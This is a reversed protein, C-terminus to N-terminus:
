VEQMARFYYKLGEYNADLIVNSNEKAEKEHSIISRKSRVNQSHSALDRETVTESKFSLDRKAIGSVMGEKEESEELPTMKVSITQPLFPFLPPVLSALISKQVELQAEESERVQSKKMLLTIFLPLLSIFRKQHSKVESQMAGELTAESVTTAGELATEPLTSGMETTPVQLSTPHEVSTSVYAKEIERFFGNNTLTTALLFSPKKLILECFYL